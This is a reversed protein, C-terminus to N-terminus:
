ARHRLPALRGAMGGGPPDLGEPAVLRYQAIADERRGAQECIRGLLYAADKAVGDLPPLADRVVAQLEQVALKARKVKVFCYGLWCGAQARTRSDVKARQLEPRRIGSRGGTFPDLALV